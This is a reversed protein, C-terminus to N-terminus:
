RVVHNAGLQLITKAISHNLVFPRESIRENVHLGGEAMM